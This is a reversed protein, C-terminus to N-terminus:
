SMRMSETKGSETNGSKGYSLARSKSMFKKECERVWRERARADERLEDNEASQPKGYSARWMEGQYFMFLAKEREKDWNVYVTLWLLNEHLPCLHMFSTYSLYM